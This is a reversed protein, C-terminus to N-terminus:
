AHSLLIVTSGQSGAKGGCAIGMVIEERVEGQDMEGFDVAAKVRPNNWVERVRAGLRQVKWPVRM